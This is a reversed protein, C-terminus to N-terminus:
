TEDHAKPMNPLPPMPLGAELALAELEAMQKAWIVEQEKTFKAEFSYFTEVLLMVDEM